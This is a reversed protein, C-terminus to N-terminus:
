VEVIDFCFENVAANIAVFSCSSYVDRDVLSGGVLLCAKTFVRTPFIGACPVRRACRQFRQNCFEFSSDCAKCKCAAHSCCCGDKRKKLLSVADDNRAIDIAACEANQVFNELIEADTIGDFVRGIQFRKFGFNRGLHFREKDFARCVREQRHRVQCANGCNGLLVVNQGNDIVCKHRRIQLTRNFQAGVDDHM